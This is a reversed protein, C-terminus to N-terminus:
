GGTVPPFFAIEDGSKLETNRDSITQNVAIQLNNNHQLVTTWMEGREALKNILCNVTKFHSSSLTEDALGLAERLAAFYLINIM